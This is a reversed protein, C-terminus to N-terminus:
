TGILLCHFKGFEKELESINFKLPNQLAKDILEKNVREEKKFKAKIEKRTLKPFFTQMLLFDTGINQLARYFKLTDSVVGFILFCFLFYM